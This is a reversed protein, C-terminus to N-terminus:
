GKVSGAALGKIFHKQLVLYIILLPLASLTCAAFILGWQTDYEGQFSYVATTMTGKNAGSFFLLPKLFDNWITMTNFILVTATVTKLLPFIIRWYIMFRSCGDIQAAEELEKPITRMFGNYLFISFAMSTAMNVLIIGPYTNLLSLSKLIKFLPIMASQFPMMLGSIFFVLMFNNFKSPIRAIPYAAMSGFVVLGALAGGTIAASNFFVLLFKMKAAARVYNVWQFSQPLAFPSKIIEQDTKLSISILLYLPFIVLIMMLLILIQPFINYKRLMNRVFSFPIKEKVIAINNKATM